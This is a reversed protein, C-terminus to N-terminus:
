ARGVAAKIDTTFRAQLRTKEKSNFGMFPRTRQNFNAKKTAQQNDFFIVARRSSESKVQMSRLMQGTAFLDVPDIPFGRKKLQKIYGQSYDRFKGNIGKGEETRQKIIQRGLGAVRLIAKPLASEVAQKQKATIQTLDKPTIELNLIVTM